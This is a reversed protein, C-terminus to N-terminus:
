GPVGHLKRAVNLTALYTKTVSRDPRSEIRARILDDLRQRKAPERNRHGSYTGLVAIYEDATYTVDWVYRRVAVTRLLGSQDIDAGLDVVSEPPGPAGAKTAEEDPVVAEYDQQVETWFADGGEPLVHKTAVVALAGDPKLLGASKRYRLEPDIWHFARFALVADFRQEAPDWSEFDATVIKANSFNALKRRARAALAEGLEVGVIEYGREALPLTAQGTGPGIELLRAGHQVATLAILDDFVEPPYRPRAREYADPVEEFTRRLRERSDEMSGTM